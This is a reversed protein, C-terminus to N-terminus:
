EHECELLKNSISFTDVYGMRVGVLIKAYNNLAHDEECRCLKFYHLDDLLVNLVIKGKESSFVERFIKQLEKNQEEPTLNEFGVLGQKRM